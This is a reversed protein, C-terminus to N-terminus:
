TSLFSALKGKAFHYQAQYCPANEQQFLGLSDPIIREMLPQLHDAVISLNATGTLTVDARITPGLTERCLMAWLM